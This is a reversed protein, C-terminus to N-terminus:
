LVGDQNGNLGTISQSSCCVKGNVSVRSLLVAGPNMFCDKSMRKPVLYIENDGEDDDYAMCEATDDAEKAEKAAPCKGGDKVGTGVQCSCGRNNCRVLALSFLRAVTM